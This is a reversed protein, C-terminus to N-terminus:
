QATEGFWFSGSSSSSCTELHSSSHAYQKSPNQSSSHPFVGRVNEIEDLFEIRRSVFRAMAERSQPKESNQKAYSLLWELFDQETVPSSAQIGKTAESCTSQSDNFESCAKTKSAGARVELETAQNEGLTSLFRLVIEREICLRWINRWTLEIEDIENSATCFLILKQLCIQNELEHFQKRLHEM